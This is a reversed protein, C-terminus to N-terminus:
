KSFKRCHLKDETQVTITYMSSALFEVNLTIKHTGKKLPNLQQRFVIKGTLDYIKIDSTTHKNNSIVVNLENQVPNPYVELSEENTTCDVAIVNSYEYQGNFDIQRLRYYTTELERSQDIFNYNSMAQSSGAGTVQGIEIFNLAGSVM